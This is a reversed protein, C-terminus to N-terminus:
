TAELLDAATGSWVGGANFVLDCITVVLANNAYQDLSTPILLAADPGAAGEGGLSFRNAGYPPSRQTSAHMYKSRRKQANAPWSIEGPAFDGWTTTTSLPITAGDTGPIDLPTQGKYPSQLASYRLHRPLYALVGQVNPKVM